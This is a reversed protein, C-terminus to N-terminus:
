KSQDDIWTQIEDRDFRISGVLKKHPIKNEAVWARVTRPAMNLLKAVGEIDLLETTNPKTM